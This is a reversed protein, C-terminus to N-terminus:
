ASNQQKKQKSHHSLKSRATDPTGLNLTKALWALSAGCSSRLELAFDLNWTESKKAAHFRKLELDHRRLAENLAAQWRHAKMDALVDKSLGRALKLGAHDALVQKKWADTGLAWARSFKKWGLRAQEELNGALLTLHKVV